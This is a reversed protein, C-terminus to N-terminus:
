RPGRTRGGVSRLVARKMALVTWPPFGTDPALSLDRAPVRRYGRYMPHIATINPMGLLTDMQQPYASCLHLSQWHCPHPVQLGLAGLTIDPWSASLESSGYRIARLSFQYLHMAEWGMAVQLVGHLERLTFSAPVLVRRWVMPSIGLLWVKIQVIDDIVAASSASGATPVTPKRSQTM